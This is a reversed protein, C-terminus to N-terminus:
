ILIDLRVDPKDIGMGFAITACIIKVRGKIWSTQTADREAPQLGAHYPLARLM